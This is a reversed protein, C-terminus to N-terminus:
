HNDTTEFELLEVQRVGQEALRVAQGQGVKQRTRGKPDSSSTDARVIPINDSDASNPEPNRGEVVPSCHRTCTKTQIDSVHGDPM